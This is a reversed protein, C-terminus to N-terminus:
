KILKNAIHHCEMQITNRIKVNRGRYDIEKDFMENVAGILLAKGEKNMYLGGPVPDFYKDSVQKKAFLNIVTKDIHTRFPEILDFVFSRKNYNDTHLFGVYPDLGAIICSREIQSYLVGYGYNLLCNFGDRAPDRSRGKFKWAEPMISSIADFYAQAAMGEVGMISGRKSDLTGKLANLSKAIDQVTAAGELAIVSSSDAGTAVTTMQTSVTKGGSFANPQSIVPTQQIEINVGGHSIAVPLISVNGGIVITGTRENIEVRAQPFRPMLAPLQEVRSLFAVPDRRDAEPVQVEVTRSDLARAIGAHDV